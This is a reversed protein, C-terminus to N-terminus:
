AAQRDEEEVSLGVNRAKWGEYAMLVNEIRKRWKPNMDGDHTEISDLYQEVFSRALEMREYAECEAASPFETGDESVWVLRSEKKM